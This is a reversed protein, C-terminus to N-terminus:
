NQNPQQIYIPSSPKGEARDAKTLIGLALYRAQKPTMLLFEQPTSFLITVRGPDGYIGTYFEEVKVDQSCLEEYRRQCRERQEQIEQEKMKNIREQKEEMVQYCATALQRIGSESEQPPVVRRIIEFAEERTEVKHLLGWSYMESLFMPVQNFIGALWEYVCFPLGSHERALEAEFKGKFYSEYEETTIKM